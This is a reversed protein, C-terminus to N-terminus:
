IKEYHKEVQYGQLSVVIPIQKVGLRQQEPNKPFVPSNLKGLGLVCDGLGSGSIKAGLIHTEGCLDAILENLIRTSVGLSSQLGQHINMLEGLAPWDGAQIASIASQACLDMSNFIEAYIAPFKQQGQKVIDIVTRTPVKAGSYVLVIEPIAPLKKIEVPDMRYSVIGGFVSAAVDAGSGLGQVETIIKKGRHFVEMPSLEIALWDALVALTAVTVAASSGLGVFASFEATVQLDFGSPLEQRFHDIAALVFDFPKRIIFHDLTHHDSGLAASHININRDTRPILKLHLRQDVACSLAQKGHLVAHEGFLM